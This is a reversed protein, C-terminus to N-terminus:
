CKSSPCTKSPMLLHKSLVPTLFRRQVMMSAVSISAVEDDLFLFFSLSGGSVDSRSRLRYGKPMFAWTPTYVFVFEHM